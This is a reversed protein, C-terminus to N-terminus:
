YSTTLFYPIVRQWGLDDEFTHLARNALLSGGFRECYLSEANKASFATENALCVYDHMTDKDSIPWNRFLCTDKYASNDGQTGEEVSFGKFNQKNAVGCVLSGCNCGVENANESIGFAYECCCSSKFAFLSLERVTIM